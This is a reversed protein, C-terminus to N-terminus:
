QKSVCVLERLSHYEASRTDCSFYYLSEWEIWDSFLALFKSKRYSVILSVILTYCLKVNFTVVNTRKGHIYLFAHGPSSAQRIILWIVCVYVQYGMVIYESAFYHLTRWEAFFHGFPSHLKKTHIIRDSKRIMKCSIQSSKNKDKSTYFHM